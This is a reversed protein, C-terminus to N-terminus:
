VRSLSQVAGHGHLEQDSSITAVANGSYRGYRQASFDQQSPLRSCVLDMPVCRLESAATTVAGAKWGGSIAFPSSVKEPNLTSM